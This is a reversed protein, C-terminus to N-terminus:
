KGSSGRTRADRGPGGEGPHRVRDAPLPPDRQLTPSTHRHLNVGAPGPRFGSCNTPVAANPRNLRKHRALWGGAWGATTTVTTKLDGALLHWAALTHGVGLPDIRPPGSAGPAPRVIGSPRPSSAMWRGRTNARDSTGRGLIVHENEPRLFLGGRRANTTRQAMRALGSSKIPRVPKSGMQSGFLPTASPRSRTRTHDSGIHGARVGGCACRCVM